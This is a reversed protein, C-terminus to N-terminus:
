QKIIQKVTSNSGNSIQVLYSGKPLNALVNLDITNSGKKLNVKKNWVASGSATLVKISVTEAKNWEVQVVANRQFPNPSITFSAMGIPLKVSVINFLTSKGDFDIQKLRYYVVSSVMAAVADQYEYQHLLASNGNGKRSGITNFHTGDESREVEYRKCNIEMSSSWTIKVQHNQQYTAAFGVLTIPLPAVVPAISATADDVYNVLADSVGELRATNIITPLQHDIPNNVTAKFEIEV